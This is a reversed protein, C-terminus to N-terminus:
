PKPHTPPPMPVLLGATPPTIPLTVTFTSGAGVQSTVRISGQHLRVLEQCIFLGLGLGMCSGANDPRVQYLRDFIRRLHHAPIGCGTDTIAIEAQDAQPAPKVEVTIRGGAPTFKLANNLLNSLVQAIRTDDMLLAPIGPTVLCGLQIQKREAAPKLRTVVRQVLDGLGARKLEVSMKGTEVRTVDLMDNICTRMQDCSEQAIGLYEKQTENVPGALGELVLSVFERASTLPTKVEHSVTHYFSQLEEHKHVLKEHAQTLNEQAQRIREEARKREEINTFSIVVGTLNHHNNHIHAARYEIPIQRGDLRALRATQSDGPLVGPLRFATFFDTDEGHTGDNALPFVETLRQGLANAQSWGTIKAASPNFFKIRGEADTAILGDAISTLTTQFWSESEKLRRDTVHKALGMRIATELERDEFPKLIYGFPGSRVARKVTDEDSNATVYIIPLDQNQRIVMATEIGSIGDGLNIDMLVLDPKSTQAKQVAEEGDHALGVVTYGLRQLRQQFDFAVIAEDEVVLIRPSYENFATAKGPHPQSATM